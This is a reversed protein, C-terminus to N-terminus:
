TQDPRLLKIKAAVFEDTTMSGAIHLENLQILQGSITANAPGTAARHNIAGVVLATLSEVGSAIFLAVSMHHNPRSWMVIGTLLFGIALLGAIFTTKGGTQDVQDLTGSIM